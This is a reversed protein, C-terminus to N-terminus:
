RLSQLLNRAEESEPAAKLARQLRQRAEEIRGLSRLARAADTLIEPNEPQQQLAINFEALAMEWQRMRQFIRGRGLHYAPNQSDRAIAEAYFREARDLDSLRNYTDALRGFAEGETPRIAAAAELHPIAQRILGAEILADALNFRVVYCGPGHVLAHQWLSLSNKWIRLQDRSHIAWTFALFAFSLCLAIGLTGTRKWLVTAPNGAPGRANESARNDNRLLFLSGGLWSLIGLMPVYAYRDAM